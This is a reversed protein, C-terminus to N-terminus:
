GEVLKYIAPWDAMASGSLHKHHRHHNRRMRLTFTSEAVAIAGAYVAALARTKRTSRSYENQLSLLNTVLGERICPEHKWMDVRMTIYKKSVRRRTHHAGTM